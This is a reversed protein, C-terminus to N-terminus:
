QKNFKEIAEKLADMRASSKKDAGATGAMAAPAAAASAAAPAAAPAAVPASAPQQLQQELTPSIKLKVQLQNVNQVIKAALEDRKKLEEDLGSKEHAMSFRLRELENRTAELSKNLSDTAAVAKNIQEQSSRNSGVAMVAVVLALVAVVPAFGLMAYHAALKLRSPAAGEEADDNDERTASKGEPEQHSAM